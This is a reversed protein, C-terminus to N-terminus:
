KADKGSAKKPAAAPVKLEARRLRDKARQAMKRRTAINARAKEGNIKSM